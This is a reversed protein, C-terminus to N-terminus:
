KKAEIYAMILKVIIALFSASLTLLGIMISIIEYDSM